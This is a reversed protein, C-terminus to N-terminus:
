PQDSAPADRLTKEWTEGQVPEGFEHHVDSAICVFGHRAYLRRASELVTHTWLTIRDYEHERAFGTCADVLADGIGRRRAFPEVHLLRLRAAHGRDTPGEDTLFVAGAMVGDLGAVWCQERGPKFRRLFAAATEAVLTELEHGWGHSEAYLMAQRAAIQSVEGAQAPRLALEAPSAPDLLLRARTLAQVLDNRETRGLRGLDQAVAARQRQDIADAVARGAATVAIARARADAGTRERTILGHKEFGALMRSLYGRDLRLARQLMNAMVPQRRVIEFLLRAESLNLDPELFRRDIAGVHRTFFRNFTRVAEIAHEM